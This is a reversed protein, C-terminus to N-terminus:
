DTTLADTTIGRPVEPVTSEFNSTPKCKHRLIRPGFSYWVFGIFM